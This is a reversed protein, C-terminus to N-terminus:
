ASATALRPAARGASARAVVAHPLTTFSWDSDRRRGALREAIIRVAEGGM